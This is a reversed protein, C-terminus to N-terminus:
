GAVNLLSAYPGGLEAIAADISAPDSLDCHHHTVAKNDCPKIDLSLIFDLYQQKNITKGNAFTSVFDEHLIAGLAERDSKVEADIWQNVLKILAKKDTDESANVVVIQISYILTLFICLNTALSKM